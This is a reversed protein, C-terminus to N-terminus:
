GGVAIFFPARYMYRSSRYVIYKHAYLVAARRLHLDM